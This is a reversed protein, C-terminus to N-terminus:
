DNRTWSTCGRDALLRHSIMFKILYTRLLVGSVFVSYRPIYTAIMM